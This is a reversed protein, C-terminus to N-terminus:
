PLLGLTSLPKDAWVQAEIYRYPGAAGDPNWDQPLGFRAIVEALEDLRWVRGHWPRTPDFRMAPFSDGYTLSVTAPDFADIPVSISRGEAYWTIVWDCMGVIMYHPTLRIPQGGQECFQARIRQELARRIHLYDPTRQSAFGRGDARLRAQLRDGEDPALATLSRFPGRSAEYYHTLVGPIAATSV